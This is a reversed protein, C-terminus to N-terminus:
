RSHGINIKESEIVKQLGEELSIRPKWGVQVLASIDVKSDMTENKRYPLKGFDLHTNQNHTMSKAMEVFNRISISRNTGVEFRYLGKTNQTNTFQLVSEFARVVDDIYIFDRKQDGPTLEISEVGQLLAYIIKTVFKTPDDGIGYFHELAMNVCILKQSFFDLWESCHRKSLSYFNVGKDLITDTNIFTRVGYHVAQELLLLPLTLNAEIVKSLPQSDRGYHTACHLITDIKHEEFVRTLASPDTDIDYTCLRNQLARIRTLQSTSRKLLIITHNQSIFHELLHSGLFGTGGTM